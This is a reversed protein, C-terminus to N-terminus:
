LRNPIGPPVGERAIRERLSLIEAEINAWEDQLWRGLTRNGITELILSTGNGRGSTEEMKGGGGGETRQNKQSMNAQTVGRGRLNKEKSTWKREQKRSMEIQEKENRVQRIKDVRDTLEKRQNILDAYTEQM